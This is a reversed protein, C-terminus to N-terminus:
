MRFRLSVFFSLLIQYDVILKEFFRFCKEEHQIWNVIKIFPSERNNYKIVDDVDCYNVLITHIYKIVKNLSVNM